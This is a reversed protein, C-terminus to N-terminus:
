SGRPQSAAQYIESLRYFNYGKQRLITILRDLIALGNAKRKHYVRSFVLRYLTSSKELPIKSSSSLEFLDHIHFGFIILNSLRFTKLLYLYFPGMLKIYSLSMPIRFIDSFVALPFEFIRPHNLFYPKTPKSLNNFAGPRISPFISSDYKFGYRALTHYDKENIVGLPARYGIPDKAFFKSYAEKGRKIEHESNSERPAPHSYSHLEFEVDLTSLQEVQSPHTELLSGQVFCTLPTDKEKFFAVLDPIHQLGEHSPESLLEGYDQEVDLTLCAVKKGKLIGM